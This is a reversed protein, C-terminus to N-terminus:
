IKKKFFSYIIPVLVLTIFTSSILGGLVARAMPAQAEGGDGFGLAIPTLGLITTTTTILIPRLRQKAALVISEKASRKTKGIENAQHVLLIANNVVIGALMVCGINSQMNFTTNTLYLIWLVGIAAMPVSFMIIFPDILSEFQAAMVMYVLLIVLILSTALDRNSEIQEQYNGGILIGFGAPTPFDQLLEQIEQVTVSENIFDNTEIGLRLIRQRSDREIRDPGVYDEVRVLNSMMIPEEYKNYVSMSLIDESTLNENEKAQIRIKYEEGRDILKGGQLGTTLTKIETALSPLSLGLDSIKQRDAVILKENKTREEPVNVEEIGELTELREKLQLAIPFFRNLNYGRIEIDINNGSSNPMKPVFPSKPVRGSVKVGLLSHFRERIKSLIQKASMSREKASVLSLNIFAWNSETADRIYAMSNKVEPFESKIVQVMHLMNEEMVEMPTGKGMNAYVRVEGPDAYPMFESGIRPILVLASVFLLFCIFLTSFRNELSTKLIENYKFDVWEFGQEFFRWIGKEKIKETKSLLLASLTPILFIAVILSVLMSFIIVIALEKFLLSTVGQIFIVPLFVILTTITSAIVSSRVERPGQIAAELVSLGKKRLRMINELVVIANDVLMGIGLGLGGITMLNLTLDNFYLLAFTAIVSIPISIGIVLTSRLNRLFVILVVIALIGGYLVSFLVNNISNEVYISTNFIETYSFKQNAKHFREIVQIANKAVKVTNSGSSKYLAIRLGREGNVYSIHNNKRPILRVTAIDNLFINGDDNNKIVLNRLKWIRNIDAAIRLTTRTNGTTITGASLTFNKKKLINAIETISLKLAKLKKLDMSVQVERETGGWIDVNSVGEIRMLIPLLQDELLNTINPISIESTIGFVLLPLDNADYKQVFITSAEPPLDKEIKAVRQLVERQAESIDVGWDFILRIFCRGSRSSSTINKLGELSSLTDEIPRTINKEIETPSTGNVNVRVTLTPVTTDPMLEIPIRLFAICGMLVVILAIMSVFIPRTVIFKSVSM